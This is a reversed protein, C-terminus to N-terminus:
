VTLPPQATLPVPSENPEPRQLWGYFYSRRFFM